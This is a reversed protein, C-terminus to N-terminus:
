RVGHLLTRGSFSILGLSSLFNVMNKLGSPENGCEGTGISLLILGTWAEM